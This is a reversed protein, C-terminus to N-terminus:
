ALTPYILEIQELPRSAGGPSFPAYRQVEAAGMAGAIRHLETLRAGQRVLYVLYTHRLAQLDVEQAHALGADMALLPIRQALEQLGQEADDRWAPLPDGDQLLRCLAPGLPLQRPAAGTIAVTCGGLDFDGPTLAALESRFLV